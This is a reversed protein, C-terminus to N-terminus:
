TMRKSGIYFFKIKNSERKPHPYTSCCTIITLNEEIVSISRSIKCKCFNVNIKNYNIWMYLMHGAFPTM